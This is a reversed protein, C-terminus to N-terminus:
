GVRVDAGRFNGVLTVKGSNLLESITAIVERDNRASDAVAAVLELLTIVLHGETQQELRALKATAQMVPGPLMLRAL